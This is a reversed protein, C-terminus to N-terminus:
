IQWIERNVEKKSFHLYVAMVAIILEMTTVGTNIGIVGYKYIPQLYDSGWFYRETFRSLQLMALMFFAIITLKALFRYEVRCAKHAYFLAATAITYMLAFGIYWAIRIITTYDPNTNALLLPAYQLMIGGIIAIISMTILSSSVKQNKVALAFFICLVSFDSAWAYADLLYLTENFM